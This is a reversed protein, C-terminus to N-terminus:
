DQLKLNLFREKLTKWYVWSYKWYCSSKDHYLGKATQMTDDKTFWKANDDWYVYGEGFRDPCEGKKLICYKGACEFYACKYTFSVRTLLAMCTCGCVVVISYIIWSLWDTSNNWLARITVVVFSLAIVKPADYSWDTPSQDKVKHKGLISITSLKTKEVAENFHKHSSWPLRKMLFFFVLSAVYWADLQLWRRASLVNEHLFTSCYLRCSCIWHWSFSCKRLCSQGKRNASDQQRCMLLKYIYKLLIYILFFFHSLYFQLCAYRMTSYSLMIHGRVDIFNGACNTQLVIVRSSVPCTIWSLHESVWQLKRSFQM